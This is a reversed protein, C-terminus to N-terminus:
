RGCLHDGGVHRNKATLAIRKPSRQLQSQFTNTEYVYPMTGDMLSLKFSKMTVFEMM